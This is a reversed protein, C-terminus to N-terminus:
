PGPVGCPRPSRKVAVRNNADKFAPADDDTGTDDDDDADDGAITERRRLPPPRHCSARKIEDSCCSPGGAGDHGDDDAGRGDDDDDGDDDTDGSYFDLAPDDIDVDDDSRLPAASGPAVASAMTVAHGHQTHAWFDACQLKATAFSSPLKLLLSAAVM